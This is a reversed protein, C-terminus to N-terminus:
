NAPASFSALNVPCCDIIILSAPFFSSGGPRFRNRWDDAVAEAAESAQCLQARAMVVAEPSLWGTQFFRLNALYRPSSEEQVIGPHPFGMRQAPAYRLTLLLALWILQLRTGVGSFTIAAM